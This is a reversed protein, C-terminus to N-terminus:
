QPTYEAGAVVLEFLELLDGYAEERGQACAAEARMAEYEETTPDKGLLAHTQAAAKTLHSHQCGDQSLRVEDIFTSFTGECHFLVAEFQLLGFEMARAKAQAFFARTRHRADGPELLSKMAAANATTDSAAVAQRVQAMYVDVAEAQAPTLRSKLRREQAEQLIAAPFTLLRKANAVQAALQVASSSEVKPSKRSM